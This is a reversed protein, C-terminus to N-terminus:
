LMGVSMPRLSFTRLVNLLRRPRRRLTKRVNLKRGTDLSSIQSIKRSKTGNGAFMRRSSSTKFVDELRRSWSSYIRRLGEDESSTKILVLINTKAMRRWPTKLVNEFRRAFVDELCRWSTEFVNKCHHRRWSMKLVEQWSIKLVDEFRRWSTQLFTKLVNELCRWSTKLVDELRRWYMKVVDQLSAMLINQIMNRIMLNFQKGLELIQRPWM